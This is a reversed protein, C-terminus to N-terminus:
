KSHLPFLAMQRDMCRQLLHDHHAEFQECVLVKTFPPLLRWPIAAFSPEDTFPFYTLINHCSKYFLLSRGIIANSEGMDRLDDM